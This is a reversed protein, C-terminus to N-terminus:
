ELNRPLDIVQEEVAWDQAEADIKVSTLGLVLKLNYIRGAKFNKLTVTNSIANNTEVKGSTYNGDTTVVKYTVTVTVPLDGAATFVPIYMLMDNVDSSFVGQASTTVGANGETLATNLTVNGSSSIKLDQDWTDVTNTTEWRPIFPATNLLNLKGETAFGTGSTESHLTISEVYVKTNSDLTGGGALQDVALQITMRMATLAHQFSFKLKTQTDPKILNILPMGAAINVVEGGKVAAYRLGGLPATAWLLDTSEAASPNVKYTITPAAAGTNAVIHTIGIARATGGNDKVVGDGSNLYDSNNDTATPIYPAYAFFNVYQTKTMTAGNGTRNDNTTMNPWYKLPTYEWVSNTTNWTVKQDYMFNPISKFDNDPDSDTENSPTIADDQLYAFIGFGNGTLEAAQFLGHNVGVTYIARTDGQSNSSLYTDFGIPMEEEAVAQVDDTTVDDNTCATALLLTGIAALLLFKTKM